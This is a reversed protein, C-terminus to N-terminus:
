EDHPLSDQEPDDAFKLNGNGSLLIAIYRTKEFH